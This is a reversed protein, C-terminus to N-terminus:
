IPGVREEILHSGEGMYDATVWAWTPTLGIDELEDVFRDIFGRLKDLKALTDYCAPVFVARTKIGWDLSACHVYFTKIEPKRM